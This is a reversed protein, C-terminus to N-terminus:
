GVFVVSHMVRGPLLTFAGTLVLALGYLSWMSRKHGNINGRRAEWVAMPVTVLVLISLLHIPSWPGWLRLEHIWFSSAAVVVMLGAWVVGVLRHASTGKVAVMQVTGLVFAVLAAFAHLTIVAGAEFLPAASMLDVPMAM